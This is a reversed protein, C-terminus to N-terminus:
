LDTELVLSYDRFNNRRYFKIALENKAAVDLMVKNVNKTKCWELFKDYLKKGIGKSRFEDLVLTTELYAAVIAPLRRYAGEKALEGCLYGVIKGDVIAVLVCCDEKSIKDQWYKTGDKEFVWDVDLLPDYEKKEKEFLKFNLEQIKKLDM